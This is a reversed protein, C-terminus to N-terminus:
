LPEWRCGPRPGRFRPPSSPLSLSLFSFLSPPFAAPIPSLLLLSFQPPESELNFSLSSSLLSASLLPPFLVSSWSSSSHTPSWSSSPSFFSTPPPPAAPPPAAPILAPAPRVSSQKYVARGAPDGRPKAAEAPRLCLLASGGAGGGGRLGGPGREERVRRAWGEGAGGARRCGPRPRQEGQRHWRSEARLMAPHRARRSGPEQEPETEPNGPEASTLDRPAPSTGPSGRPTLPSRPPPPPQAGM